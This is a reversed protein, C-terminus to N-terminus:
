DHAGPEAPAGPTKKKHQVVVYAVGIAAVGLVAVLLAPNSTASTQAQTPQLAELAATSPSSAADLPNEMGGGSLASTLADILPGNGALAAGGTNTPTAPATGTGTTTATSAPATGGQAVGGKSGGTTNEGGSRIIIPLTYVPKGTRNIPKPLNEYIPREIPLTRSLGGGLMVGFSIPMAGAAATRPALVGTGDDELSYSM